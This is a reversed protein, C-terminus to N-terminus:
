YLNKKIADALAINNNVGIKRMASNKQNSITKPSKHLKRAIDNLSLGESVLRVVEFESKSLTMKCNVVQNSVMKVLLQKMITESLYVKSTKKIHMIAKILHSEDCFKDIFGLAGLGIASSVVYPTYNASFLIVIVNPYLRKIKKLLALGDPKPDNIFEYDCLIVNIYSSAEEMHSFFSDINNSLFDLSIDVSDKLLHKIGYLVIPQSDLVGINIKKGLASNSEFSHKTHLIVDLKNM